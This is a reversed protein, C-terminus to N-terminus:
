VANRIAKRRRAVLGMMGLGALMMAYTEPEPVATIPAAAFNLLLQNGDQAVNWSGLAGSYTFDSADIFFADKNYGTIGGTGTMLVYSHDVKADFSALSGILGNSGISELDITLKDAATANLTLRGTTTFADYGIGAAGNADSMQWVYTSGAGFVASTASLSTVGAGASLTGNVTLASGLRVSSMNGSATLKAGSNVTVSAGIAGPSILEGAAVVTNGGFYTQNSVTLSGAGNKLLTGSPTYEHNIQGMYSTADSRNFALTTGSSLTVGSVLFGTTGGNGVAVTGAKIYTNGTFTNQGTLTLTNTRQKVLYGSGSINNDLTIANSRDVYLTGNNIVNGIISGTTGGKGLSLAGSSITTGGSYSTDSTISLFGNGSKLLAGTGTINSSLITTTGGSVDLSSNNIINGLITNSQVGALQLTGASITINGTNTYAGTLTLMGAGLKTLSGSGSVAGTLTLADSRDTVLAGNNIIGGTLSGTTGGNGLQLTGASITTGQNYTNRGTLIQTGGGTKRVSNAGTVATATIETAGTTVDFTIVAAQSQSSFVLAVLFSLRKIVPLSRTSPLSHM